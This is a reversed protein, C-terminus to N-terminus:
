PNIIGYYIATVFLFIALNFITFGILRPDPLKKITALSDRKLQTTSEMESTDHSNVYDPTKQSLSM